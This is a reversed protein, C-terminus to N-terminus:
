FLRGLHGALGRESVFTLDYMASFAKANEDSLGTICMVFQKADLGPAWPDLAPEDASGDGYVRSWGTEGMDDRGDGDVDHQVRFRLFVDGIRRAGNPGVEHIEIADTGWREHNGIAGKYRAPHLTTVTAGGEYRAVVEALVRKEFRVNAVRADAWAHRVGSADLWTGSGAHDLLWAPAQVRQRLSASGGEEARDALPACAVLLAAVLLATPNVFSM